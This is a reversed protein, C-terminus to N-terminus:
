ILKPYRQQAIFHVPIPVHGVPVIPAAHDAIVTARHTHQLRITGRDFRRQSERLGFKAGHKPQLARRVHLQFGCNDRCFRAQVDLKRFSRKVVNHL